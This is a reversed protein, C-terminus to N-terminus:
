VPINETLNWVQIVEYASLSKVKIKKLAWQKMERDFIKDSFSCINAYDLPSLLTHKKLSINTLTSFDDTIILRHKSSLKIFSLLLTPDSFNKEFNGIDDILDVAQDLAMDKQSKHQKYDRNIYASKLAENVKEVM